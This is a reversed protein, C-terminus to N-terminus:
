SLSDKDMQGLNISIKVQTPKEQEKPETPVSFSVTKQKSSDATDVEAKKDGFGGFNSQKKVLM